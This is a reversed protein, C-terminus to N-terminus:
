IKHDKEEHRIEIEWDGGIGLGWDRVGMGFSESPM